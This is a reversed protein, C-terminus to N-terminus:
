PHINIFLETYLRDLHGIRYHANFRKMYNGRWSQYATRLDKFGMKGSAILSKFKILKRRMRKTSDKGPLRLVKGSPLLKYKGKLFNVGSILKVIRTKKMNITIGLATCVKEIEALCYRLYETDAHILYLDEMYRGYFECGLKEKIFHDLKNPFFIALNQSVESGLGLSKGPGFVSVFRRLLDLIRPDSIYREVLAFLIDHRISDFFKTFDVILAYGDNSFGNRRYFRSLHVILRRISFHPGKGEM